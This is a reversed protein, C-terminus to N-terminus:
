NRRPIAFGATSIRRRASRHQGPRRPIERRICSSYYVLDRWDKWRRSTKYTDRRHEPFLDQASSLHRELRWPSMDVSSTAKPGCMSARVCSRSPDLEAAAGGGKESRSARERNILLEDGVREVRDTKKEERELQLAFRHQQTRTIGAAEIKKRSKKRWNSTEAGRSITRPSTMELEIQRHISCVVVATSRRSHQDEQPFIGKLQQTSWELAAPYNTCYNVVM